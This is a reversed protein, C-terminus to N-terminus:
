ANKSTCAEIFVRGYETLELSGYEYVPKKLKNSDSSFAKSQFDISEKYYKILEKYEEKKHRSDAEFCNFIGLQVLNDIYLEIREPYSLFTGKEVGSLNRLIKYKGISINKTKFIVSLLPLRTISNDKIYKIIIAEDPTLEDIKRIFGPHAMNCKHKKSASALLSAFLDVINEDGVYTFRDLIVLGIEPPVSVISEDPSSEIKKKYEDLNKEFQIKTKENHLKVPLLVSNSLEFVTELALGLKKIGPSALDNYIEKLIPIDM